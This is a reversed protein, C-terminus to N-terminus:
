ARVRGSRAVVISRLLKTARTALYAADRLLARRFLYIAEANM